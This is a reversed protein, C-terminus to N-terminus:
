DELFKEATDCLLEFSKTVFASELFATRISEQEEATEGRTDPTTFKEFEERVDEWTLSVGQTECLKRSVLVMQFEPLVQEKLRAIAQEDTLLEFGEDPIHPDEGMAICDKFAEEARKQTWEDVEQPDLAYESGDRISELLTFAINKLATERNRAENTELYWRRYQDVTSVGDIKEARILEDTIAGPARRLIESVTMTLSRGNIPATLADGVHLGTVAKEAEEAGPLGLGPFLLVDMRGPCGLRVSDGPLVADPHFEKAHIRALTNLREEVEEPGMHWKGLEEPVTLGGIDCLKTVISRM